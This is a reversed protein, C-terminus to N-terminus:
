RVDKFYEKPLVLSKGNDCKSILYGSSHTAMVTYKKGKTIKGDVSIVCEVKFPKPPLM